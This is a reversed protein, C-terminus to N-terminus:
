ADEFIKLDSKAKIEKGILSEGTTDGVDTRGALQRNPGLGAGLIQLSAPM